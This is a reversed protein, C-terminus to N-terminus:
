KQAIKGNIVEVLYDWFDPQVDSFLIVRFFYRQKRVVETLPPTKHVCEHNNIAVLEGPQLIFECTHHKDTVLTPSINSWLAIWPAHGGSDHHWGLNDVAGVNVLPSRFTIDPPVSPQFCGPGPQFTKFGRMSWSIDGAVLNKRTGSTDKHVDVFTRITELDFFGLRKIYKSEDSM